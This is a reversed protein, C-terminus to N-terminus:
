LQIWLYKHNSFTQPKNVFQGPIMHIPNTLSILQGSIHTPVRNMVHEITFTSSNKSTFKVLVCTDTVGKANQQKKVRHMGM